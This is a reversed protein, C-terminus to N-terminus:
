DGGELSEKTIVDVLGDESVVIAMCPYPSSEVYRIASNYRAGRTSTGRGSAKGDLIVGISYCYSEPDVLVAGDISTVLRTILPTLPVPEILTCQLKLRDAEALAETTVVVLTGHPQRSAEVMVDWLREVKAPDTLNFTTRLDKRFKTRNLRARSLSPLGYVARMLVKSDHQFEWAYHNIFNVVFLDERAPDYSGIQRGLAYVNEGDALLSVDATTMELLKRVARYDTLPTPCTLAFVEELNPHRRRALILKGVGEAGEYRLSSITNCTAFLKATAPDMGLAQAPTDMFLKGAARILEDTERPRLMLGSGPEPETLSKMCEEHFRAAAAVLLSSALPKGNTYYRNPQLSNHAKLVKRYLRLVTVVYYSGVQIPWGAFSLIKGKPADLTDLVEQVALRLGLSHLRRHLVEEPIQDRDWTPTWLQLRQLEKGRALVNSFHSFDLGCDAPELCVAPPEAHDHAEVPIGLLLVSPQLDDDLADFLSVAIAHAAQQFRTQYPWIVQETVPFPLTPAVPPASLLPLPTLM